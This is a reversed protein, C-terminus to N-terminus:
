DDLAEAEELDRARFFMRGARLIEVELVVEGTEVDRYQAPGHAWAFGPCVPDVFVLERRRWSVRGTRCECSHEEGAVWVSCPRVGVVDNVEAGPLIWSHFPMGAPVGPVSEAGIMDKCFPERAVEVLERWTRRGRGQRILTVEVIMQDPAVSMIQKRVTLPAGRFAGDYRYEVWDGVSSGVAYPPGTISSLRAELSDVRSRETRACGSALVFMAVVICAARM